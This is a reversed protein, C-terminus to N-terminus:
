VLWGGGVAGVSSMAGWAGAVSAAIAASFGLDLLYAVQHTPILMQWGLGVNAGLFLLFAPSLLDGRLSGGSRHAPETEHQRGPALPWPAPLVFVALAVAYLLTATRWGSTDILQQILPSVVLSGLGQGTFALWFAMAFRSGAGLSLLKIVVIFGMGANGLGIT